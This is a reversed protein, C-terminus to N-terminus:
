IFDVVVSWAEEKLDVAQDDFRIITIFTPGALPSARGGQEPKLWRLQAEVSM